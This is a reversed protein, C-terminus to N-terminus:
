SLLLFVVTHVCVKKLDPFKSAFLTRMAAVVQALSIVEVEGHM